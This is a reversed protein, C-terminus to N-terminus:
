RERHGPPCPRGKGGQSYHGGSFKTWDCALGGEVLTAAIDKGKTFCQAVKARSNTRESLGDCVTGSDVQVCLLTEGKVLQLLATAAEDYGVQGKEPADIGCLRISVCRGGDCLPFTDGDEVGCVSGTFEGARAYAFILAVAVPFILVGM